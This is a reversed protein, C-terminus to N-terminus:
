LPLDTRRIAYAYMNRVVGNVIYCAILICLFLYFSTGAVMSIGIGCVIISTDIWSYRKKRSRTFKPFPISSIMLLSIITVFVWLLPSAIAQALSYAQGSLSTLMLTAIFSAAITTPLGSFAIPQKPATLNFKALRGLGACVFFGLVALEPLSIDYPYWSYLAVTPALCFSVADCLSDLEQGFYSSSGLARALRGDFGDFFAAILIYYAAALHNGELSMIISLFGCLANLYTVLCPVIFLSNKCRRKSQERIIKLRMLM